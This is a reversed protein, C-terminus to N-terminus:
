VQSPTVLLTPYLTLQCRGAFDDMPAALTVPYADMCSCPYGERNLDEVTSNQPLMALLAQEPRAIPLWEFLSDLRARLELPNAHVLLEM